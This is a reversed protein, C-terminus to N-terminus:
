MNELEKHRDYDTHPITAKLNDNGQKKWNMEMEYCKGIESTSDMMGQLVTEEKAPLVLDDTCKVTRFVQGRIKIDGFGELTSNFLIPSLYCGHRVVTGFKV